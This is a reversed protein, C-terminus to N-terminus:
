IEAAELQLIRSEERRRRAWETRNKNEYELCSIIIFSKNDFIYISQEEEERAYIIVRFKM